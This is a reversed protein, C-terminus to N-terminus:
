AHPWWAPEESLGPFDNAHVSYCEPDFGMAICDGMSFFMSSLMGGFFWATVAIAAGLTSTIVGYEMATAGSEDNIFNIFM